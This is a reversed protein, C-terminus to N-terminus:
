SRCIATEVTRSVAAVTRMDTPLANVTVVAWRGDTTALDHTEFGQIDGGHGWGVAGCALRHRALGLGYRWGPEADFRPARVTRRM